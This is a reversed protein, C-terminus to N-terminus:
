KVRTEIVRHSPTVTALQPAEVFGGVARAWGSDELQKPEVQFDGDIIFPPAQSTIWESKTSLIQWNEQTLGSGTHMHVSLILPGSPVIGSHYFALVGEASSSAGTALVVTRRRWDTGCCQQLWSGCKRQQADDAPHLGVRWAAAVSLASARHVGAMRAIADVVGRCGFREQAPSNGSRPSLRPPRTTTFM